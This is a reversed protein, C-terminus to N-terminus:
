PRSSVPGPAVRLDGVATAIADRPGLDPMSTVIDDVIEEVQEATIGLADLTRALGLSDLLTDFREVLLDTADRDDDSARRLGLSVALQAQRAATDARHFRLGRTLAICTGVGHPLDYLSGLAYRVARAFWDPAFGPQTRPAPYKTLAMATLVRQRAAAGAVLDGGSRSADLLEIVGRIGAISLPDLFPEPGGSRLHVLLADDLSKVGTEFWVPDPTSSAVEGDLFVTRSVAGQDGYGHKRGTDDRRTGWFPFFEAYSLTTTATLVPVRTQGPSATAPDSLGGRPPPVLDAVRSTGTGVLTAMGKASDITSSGGVAVFGDVGNDLAVRAGAEIAGSPSHPSSGDFVLPPAGYAQELAERVIAFAPSRRVNAGCVLLPRAVQQAALEAGLRERVCGVGQVIGRFGADFRYASVALPWETPSVTTPSVATHENM